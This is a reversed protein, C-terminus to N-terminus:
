RLGLVGSNLAGSWGPTGSSAAAASTPSTPADRVAGGAAAPGLDADSNRRLEAFGRSAPSASDYAMDPARSDAEAGSTASSATGQDSRPLDLYVLIDNSRIAAFGEGRRGTGVPWTEGFGTLLGLGEDGPFAFIPMGPAWDGPHQFVPLDGLRLLSAASMESGDDVVAIGPAVATFSVVAWLRYWGSGPRRGERWGPRALWNLRVELPVEFTRKESPALPCLFRLDVDPPCCGGCSAEFAVEDAVRVGELFVGHGLSLDVWFGEAGCNRVTVSFTPVGPLDCEEDHCTTVCDCPQALEVALGHVCGTPLESNVEEQVPEGSSSEPAACCMANAPVIEPLGLWSPSLAYAACTFATPPLYDDAGAAIGADPRAVVASPHQYSAERSSCGAVSPGGVLALIMVLNSGHRM